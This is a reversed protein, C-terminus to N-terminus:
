CQIPWLFLQNVNHEMRVNPCIMIDNRLEHVHRATPFLHHMRLGPISLTSGKFLVEVYSYGQFHRNNIKLNSISVHLLKSFDLPLM